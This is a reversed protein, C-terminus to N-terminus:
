NLLTATPLQTKNHLRRRKRRARPKDTTRAHLLEDLEAQDAGAARNDVHANQKQQRVGKGNAPHQRFDHGERQAHRVAKEPVTAPREVVDVHGIRADAVGLESGDVNDAQRKAQNDHFRNEHCVIVSPLMGRGFAPHQHKCLQCRNGKDDEPVEEGVFVPCELSSAGLKYAM